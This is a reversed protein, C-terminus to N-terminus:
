QQAIRNQLVTEVFKSTDFEGNSIASIMNKVDDMDIGETYAGITRQLDGFAANMEGIEKRVMAADVDTALTIKEDIINSIVDFQRKDVREFISAILDTCYLIDYAKEYNAPMSLNTYFAVVALRLAFDRAEPHYETLDANFCGKIAVDVFQMMESLTLNRKVLIDVGYWELVSTEGIMGKCADYLKTVSVRENKKAM